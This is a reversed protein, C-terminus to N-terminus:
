INGQQLHEVQRLTTHLKNLDADPVKGDTNVRVLADVVQFMAYLLLETETMDLDRAM